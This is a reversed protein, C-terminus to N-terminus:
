IHTWRRGGKIQWIHAATVGYRNALQGSSEDSARIAVADEATLRALPHKEGRRHTGHLVKDAENGSQTTWRLNDVHCNSKNGDKHAVQPLGDPNPIFAMAVHRHVLGKAPGGCVRLYGDKASKHPQIPGGKWRVNVIQGDSRVRRIIREVSRILGTNSVEYGETGAIPLWEIHAM